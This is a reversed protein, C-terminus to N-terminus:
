PFNTRTWYDTRGILSIGIYGRVKLTNKDKLSLYCSYTKGNQPDYIKGGNWEDDNDFKFSNMIVLGVLPQSRKTEEPNKDDMKPKGNEVPFQLWVIKGVFQDGTRYVQVKAPKEGHTLWFGVIDDAKTQASLFGPNLMLLSLSIFLILGKFPKVKIDM